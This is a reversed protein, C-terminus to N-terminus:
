IPKGRQATPGGKELAMSSAIDGRMLNQSSKLGGYDMYVPPNIFQGNKRDRIQKPDKVKPKLYGRNDAM